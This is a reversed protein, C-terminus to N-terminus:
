QKPTDSDSSGNKKMRIAAVLFVVAFVLCVSGWIKLDAFVGSASIGLLGALAYAITCFIAGGRSNRTAIAVIGSTLMLVSVLIGSAGSTGGEDVIADGIGAACSQFMVLFTLVISIIGIVLKTTKM